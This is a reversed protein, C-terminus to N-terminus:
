TEEVKCRTCTAARHHALRAARAEAGKEKLKSPVSAGSGFYMQDPRSRPLSFSPRGQQTARSLIRSAQAGFDRSRTQELLSCTPRTCPQQIRFLIPPAQLDTISVKKNIEWYRIMALAPKIAIKADLQKRSYPGGSRIVPM